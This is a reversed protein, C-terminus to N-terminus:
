FCKGKSLMDLVRCDVIGKYKEVLINAQQQKFQRYCKYGKEKDDFFGLHRRKGNVKLGVQWKNAIKSWSVGPYGSANTAQKNTVFSNIECPVFVCTEKSYIKNNPKLIDKDLQFGEVYNDYFWKAFNQFNHWEECVSCGIYTPKQKQYKNSYCRTLMSFWVKYAKKANDQPSYIGEGIFGVGRATRKYKNNNM